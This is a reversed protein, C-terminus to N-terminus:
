ELPTHPARRERLYLEALYEEVWAPRFYRVQIGKERALVLLLEDPICYVLWKEVPLAAFDSLEPTNPILREYLELKSIDGPEPRIAAEILVLRDPLFVIADAWRRFVGLMRAEADSVFAGEVRPRISGLRVHTQYPWSAFEQALFESVLRLERPQWRRVV